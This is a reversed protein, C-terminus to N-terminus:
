HWLKDQYNRHLETLRGSTSGAQAEGDSEGAAFLALPCGLLEKM